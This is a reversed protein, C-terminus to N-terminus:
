KYMPISTRKIAINVCIKVQKNIILTQAYKYKNTNEYINHHKFLVICHVKGKFFLLIPGLPTRSNGKAAPM